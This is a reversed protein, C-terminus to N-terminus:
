DVLQRMMQRNSPSVRVTRVTLTCHPKPQLWTLHTAQSDRSGTGFHVRCISHPICPFGHRIEVARQKAFIQLTFDWIKLLLTKTQRLDNINSSFNSNALQNLYKVATLKCLNVLFRRNSVRSTAASNAPSCFGKGRQNSPAM